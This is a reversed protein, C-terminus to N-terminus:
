SSQWSMEGGTRGAKLALSSGQQSQALVAACIINGGDCQIAVSRGMMGSRMDCRQRWTGMGLPLPQHWSVRYWVIERMKGDTKFNCKLTVADGVVVPPLPEISVTLYAAVSPSFPIYSSSLIGFIQELPQPPM